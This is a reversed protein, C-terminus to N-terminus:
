YAPRAIHWLNAGDFGNVDGPAKDSPSTYLPRYRYAWMKSGDSRTIVTFDGKAEADAPAALPIWRETCKGDCTSKNGTSDRDFTYLTMGNPDVLVLGKKTQIIKAPFLPAEKKPPPPAPEEGHAFAGGASLWLAAAIVVFRLM